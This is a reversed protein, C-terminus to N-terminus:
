EHIGELYKEILIREWYSEFALEEAAESPLVSAQDDVGM